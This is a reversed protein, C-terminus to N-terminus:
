DRWIDQLGKTEPSVTHSLFVCGEHFQLTIEGVHGNECRYQLTIKVGRMDNQAQKVFIGKNTITTEDTSRLCKLATIHVYDLGCIPCLLKWSYEGTIWESTKQIINELSM